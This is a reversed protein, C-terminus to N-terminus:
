EKRPLVKEMVFLPTGFLDQPGEATRRFGFNEYLRIARDLFPTTSLFLRRCRQEIAFKEIERLLLEGVRHGRAGPVVAMGRIYLDSHKRVAAATGVVVGELLAVWVPGEDMRRVVREPTPATAAFGGDTYLPRYEEFSEYLVAAIAATEARLARRIEIASDNVM